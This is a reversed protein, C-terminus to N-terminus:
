SNAFQKNEVILLIQKILGLRIDYDWPEFNSIQLCFLRSFLVINRMSFFALCLFKSGNDKTLQIMQKCLLGSYSVVVTDNVYSLHAWEWAPRVVLNQVGIDVIKVAVQSRRTLAIEM